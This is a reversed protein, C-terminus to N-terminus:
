DERFDRWLEQPEVSLAAALRSVTRKQPRCNRNLLNAIAPQGVGIQRALEEQTVNKQKMVEALRESFSQEEDRMAEWQARSEPLARVRNCGEVFEFALNPFLAEVITYLARQREDPTASSDHALQAMDTVVDQIAPDCQEFASRIELYIRVNEVLLSTASPGVQPSDTATNMSNGRSFYESYYRSRVIAVRASFIRLDNNSFRQTKKQMVGITFLRPLADKPLVIRKEFAYFIIRLNDYGAIVDDIRLEFARPRPMAIIADWDLDIVKGSHEAESQPWFALKLAQKRILQYDGYKPFLDHAEKM